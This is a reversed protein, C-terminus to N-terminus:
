SSKRDDRPQLQSSLLMIAKTTTTVAFFTPQVLGLLKLDLSMIFLKRSVFLSLSPIHVESVNMDDSPIISSVDSELLRDRVLESIIGYVLKRFIM